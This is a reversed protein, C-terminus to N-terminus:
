DPFCGASIVGGVTFCWRAPGVTISLISLRAYPPWGQVGGFYSHRVRVQSCIGPNCRAYWAWSSSEESLYEYYWNGISVNAIKIACGYHQGNFYAAGNTNYDGAPSGASVNASMYLDLYGCWCSGVDSDLEGSPGQLWGVLLLDGPESATASTVGYLTVTGDGNEENAPWTDAWVSVQATALSPMVLFLALLVFQVLGLFFNRSSLHKRM